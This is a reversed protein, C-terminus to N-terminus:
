ELGSWDAHAEHDRRASVQDHGLRPLVTTAVALAQRGKTDDMRLVGSWHKILDSTKMEILAGERLLQQGEGQVAHRVSLLEEGAHARLAALTGVLIDSRQSAAERLMKKAYAEALAKTAQRHTDASQEEAVEARAFELQEDEDEAALMAASLGVNSEDAAEDAMETASPRCPWKKTHHVPMGGMNDYTWWDLGLWHTAMPEQGHYKAQDDAEMRWITVGPGLRWSVTLFHDATVSYAGISTHVTYLMSRPRDLEVKQAVVISGSAGILHDGAKVLQAPISQRSDAVCVLTEPSLCGMGRYKKLRVGDAFFYDGPAEDTGALLSGMMVASAGCCLAKVIHGTSQIGGDAIVPVGYKAAYASM